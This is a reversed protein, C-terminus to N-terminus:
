NKKFRKAKSNGRSVVKGLDRMGAAKKGRRRSLLNRDLKWYAFPELKSTGQLDGGAGRNAKFRNLCLNIFNAM